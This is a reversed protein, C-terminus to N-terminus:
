KFIIKYGMLTLALAMADINPTDVDLYKQISAYMPCCEMLLKYWGKYHKRIESMSIPRGVRARYKVIKM